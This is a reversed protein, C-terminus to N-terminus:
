RGGLGSLTVGEIFYRQAFFFLALVPVMAMTTFAMLLGPEASKDTNFLQLAYSIPMHEPSNIYILPGMFDNWAGMFTWIAIVALAPKIQPLMVSWFTRPYSCGDIKAADELEMPIGMFFQRLLFINFASAFFSPVWLPLLTDIWGLSRFILFRPMLTVAGPLMMTSLVLTFLAQKGPFQMRSFAYAVIASSMLTGIVGLVVLILTNKLYVLGRNTEVPLFDLADTYNKTKLGVHRVPTLEGPKAVFRQGALERPKVVEIRQTGDPVDEVVKGTVLRGKYNATVIGVDRPVEKLGALAAEFTNGRLNAPDVIDIRVRDKGLRELINGRVTAGRFKGELTPNKQDDFPVTDQVRPIWVLGHESSMDVDEKFSTIVVWAFPVGFVVCGVLLAAHTVVAKGYGRSAVGTGAAGMALAAALALAALGFAANPALAIGGKLFSVPDGSRSFIFAGILAAFAWGLGSRFLEARRLGPTELWGLVCRVGAVISAVTAVWAMFPMVIWILPLRWSGEVHRGGGMPIAAACILAVGAVAATTALSSRLAIRENEPPRVALQGVYVAVRVAAIWGVWSLVTGVLYLLNATM